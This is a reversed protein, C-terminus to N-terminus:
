IVKAKNSTEKMMVKFMSYAESLRLKAHLTSHQLLLSTEDSHSAMEQVFDHDMSSISYFNDKTKLGDPFFNTRFLRRSAYTLEGIIECHITGVRPPRYATHPTSRLAMIQHETLDKLRRMADKKLAKLLLFFEQLL